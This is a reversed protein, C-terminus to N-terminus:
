HIAFLSLFGQMFSKKYNENTNMTTYDTKSAIHRPQVYSPHQLQYSSIPPILFSSQLNTLREIRKVYDAQLDNLTMKMTGVEKLLKQISRVLPFFYETNPDTDYDHVWDFQNNFESLDLLISSIISNSMDSLESMDFVRRLRRNLVRTDTASIKDFTQQTVSNLVDFPNKNSDTLEMRFQPVQKTRKNPILDPIVNELCNNESSIGLTADTPTSTTYKDNTALILEQNKCQKSQENRLSSKILIDHEQSLEEHALQLTEHNSNLRKYKLIMNNESKRLQFLEQKLDSVQTKLDEEIDTKVALLQEVLKKKQLEQECKEVTKQLEKSNATISKIEFKLLRIM